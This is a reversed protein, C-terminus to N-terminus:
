KMPVLLKGNWAASRSQQDSDRDFLVLSVPINGKPEDAPFEIEYRMKYGDRNASVKVDDADVPTKYVKADEGLAVVCSRKGFRIHFSDDWGIRGDTFSNVHDQDFAEVTARLRGARWVLDVKASCDAVGLWRKKEGAQQPRLDFSAKYSGDAARAFTKSRQFIFNIQQLLPSSTLDARYHKMILSRTPGDAFDWKVPVKCVEGPDMTKVFAEPSFGEPMVIEVKRQHSALNKVEMDCEGKIRGDDSAQLKLFPSFIAGARGLKGFRIAVTQQYRNWRDFEGEYASLTIKHAAPHAAKTIPAYASDLSAKLQKIKEEDRKKARLAGHYAKQIVQKEGVAHSLEEAQRFDPADPFEGLNIGMELEERAFLGCSYGDVKLEYTKAELGTVKLIDRNLREAIEFRSYMMKDGWRQSDKTCSVAPFPLNKLRRTFTLGDATKKVNSIEVDVSKVTKQAAADIEASALDGSAGLGEIFALALVIGGGQCGPHVGDNCFVTYGPAASDTIGIAEYLRRNVDIFGVGMRSALKKEELSTVRLAHMRDSGDRTQRAEYPIPSCLFIKAAPANTRTEVVIRELNTVYKQLRRPFDAGPGIDNMGMNFTIVTPNYALCDLRYRKMNGAVDGVLGGNWADGKWDPYRTRIYTEIYRPYSQISVGATISDGYICVRDENGVQFGAKVVDDQTSVCGALILATIALSLTKKM